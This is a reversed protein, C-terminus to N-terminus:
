EKSTSKGMSTETVPKIKRTAVLNSYFGVKLLQILRTRDERIDTMRQMKSEKVLTSLSHLLTRRLIVPLFKILGNRLKLHQTQKRVLKSPLETNGVKQSTFIMLRKM